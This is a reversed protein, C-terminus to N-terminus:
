SSAARVDAPFSFLAFTGGVPAPARESPLVWRGAALFGDSAPAYTRTARGGKSGRARRRRGEVRGVNGVAVTASITDNKGLRGRRGTKVLSSFESLTRHIFLIPTSSRTRHM